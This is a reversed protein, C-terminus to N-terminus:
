HSIILIVWSIQAKEAIDKHKFKIHRPAYGPKMVEKCPTGDGKLIQCEILKRKTPRINVVKGGKKKKQQNLYIVLM